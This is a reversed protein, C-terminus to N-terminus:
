STRVLVTLMTTVSAISVVTQEWTVLTVAVSTLNWVSVMCVDRHASQCVCLGVFMYFIKCRKKTWFPLCQEAAPMEISYHEPQLM